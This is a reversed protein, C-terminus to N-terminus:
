WEWRRSKRDSWKQMDSRLHSSLPPNYYNLPTWPPLESRCTGEYASTGGLGELRLEASSTFSLLSGLFAPSRKLDHSPKLSNVEFIALILFLRCCFNSYDKRTGGTSSDFAPHVVALHVFHSLEPSM